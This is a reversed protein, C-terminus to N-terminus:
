DAPKGLEWAAALAKLQKDWLKARDDSVEVAVVWEPRASAGRAEVFSETAFLDELLPQVFEAGNKAKAPLHKKWLERPAPALKALLDAGMAKTAPLALVEKLKAANTGDAIHTAGAFHHRYLVGTDSAGGGKPPELCGSLFSAAALGLLIALKKM